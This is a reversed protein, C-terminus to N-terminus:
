TPADDKPQNISAWKLAGVRRAHSRSPGPSAVVRHVSLPTMASVIRPRGTHSLRTRRRTIEGGRRATRGAPAGNSAPPM